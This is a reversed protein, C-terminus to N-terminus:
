DCARRRDRVEREAGVRRPPRTAGGSGALRSNHGDSRVRLHAPRGPREVLRLVPVPTGAVMDYWDSMRLERAGKPLLATGLAPLGLAQAADDAPTQRAAAGVAGGRKSYPVDLTPVGGAVHGTRSAIGGGVAVLM